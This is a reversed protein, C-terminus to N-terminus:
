PEIRLRRSLLEAMNRARTYCSRFTVHRGCWRRVASTVLSSCRSFPLILNSTVARTSTVNLGNPVRTELAEIWSTEKQLRRTDNPLIEIGFFSFADLGCLHRFHHQLPTLSDRQRINRLHQQIRKRLQQHTQGVYTSGCKKCRILYISNETHCTIRCTGVWFVVNAFKQQVNSSPRWLKRDKMSREHLKCKFSQLHRDLYLLM